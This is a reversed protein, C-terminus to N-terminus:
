CPTDSCNVEQKEYVREGVTPEGGGWVGVSPATDTFFFHALEATEQSVGWGRWVCVFVVVCVEFCGTERIIHIDFRHM